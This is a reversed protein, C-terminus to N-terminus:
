VAGAAAPFAAGPEPRIDFRRCWHEFVLLAWIGYTWDATGARHEGLVRELAERRFVASIRAAPDLLVGRAHGELDDRFWQKLPVVFGQKPRWLFEKPFYPELAKKLLYKTRTGPIRTAVPIRRMYEILRHDLFPARVELAHAMSMRDVKVLMDDVLSVGLQWAAIADLPSAYNRFIRAVREMEEDVDPVLSGARGADHLFADRFIVQQKARFRRDSPLQADGLNRVLRELRDRAGPATSSVLKLIRVAASVTPGPIRRIQESLIQGRYVDYGSFVEDGGDGSMAVTVHERTLRSLFYTPLASADAFPEDLFWALEEVVGIGEPRLVFEHHRTGFRKAVFRAHQREDYQPDDFGVSFTDLKEDSMESALAVVASSDVGGSLFFGLPVDSIRRIRVADRLIGLSRRAAEAPDLVEERPEPPHWYTWERVAGGEISVASAPPVRRAGAFITRPEAVYGLTFYQYLAYPDIERGLVGGALLAKLESAFAIGDPRRAMFLPKEGFRDRAAFVRGRGQDVIVFAFMGNLHDVCREGWAQYAALLVETDSRGSVDHGDRRLRDAVDHFNYIEGNYVLHISGDASTMPQRSGSLDIVALRRHVMAAGEVVLVGEDDPGRHAIAQAMARLAAGDPLGGSGTSVVCAFGCM